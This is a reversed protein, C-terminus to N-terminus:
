VNKLISENNQFYCYLVSVRFNLIEFHVIKFSVLGLGLYHRDVLNGHKLVITGYFNWKHETVSVEAEAEQM